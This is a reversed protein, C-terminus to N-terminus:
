EYFISHLAIRKSKYSLNFINEVFSLCANEIRMVINATEIENKM